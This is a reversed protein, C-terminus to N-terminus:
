SGSSLPLHSTFDQNMSVGTSSSGVDVTPAKGVVVIEEAKLTVNEPLLQANVQFTGASRVTIGGRSYPKYADKDIRLTYDGPPLNPIQYSGSGDTVVTQEGQLAPSSLTVVADGLPKNSAADLVKGRLVGSGQAVAVSSVLLGVLALSAAPLLHAARYRLM